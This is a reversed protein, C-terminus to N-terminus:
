TVEKSINNPMLAGSTSKSIDESNTDSETQNSRLAEVYKELLGSEMFDFHNLGYTRIKDRMGEQRCLARNHINQANVYELDGLRWDDLVTIFPADCLDLSDVSSRNVVVGLGVVLAEKIVLPDAEGGSILLLNTYQTLQRHIQDRTWPGLYHKSKRHFRDDACDGVFDVDPLSQYNAQNKRPTIKGLYITRDLTPKLTYEFTTSRIGNPFSFLLDKCAGDRWLAAHDKEALVFHKFQTQRVLFAYIASFGDSIHRHPQDIYPYHSTIGINTCTTIHPLIHYLCDYHLHVFDYQGQNITEILRQCYHTQPNLQDQPSNRLLNIISVEHGSQTLLLYYDWILIEVAGWGPPPIPLIGPGILAIKM